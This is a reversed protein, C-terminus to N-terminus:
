VSNIVIRKLAKDTNTHLLYVRSAEKWQRAAAALQAATGALPPTHFPGPNAPNDFPIGPALMNYAGVSVMLGLHGLAGGGRESPISAANTRLIRALGNITDFTPEGVIVEATQHPFSELIKDVSSTESM